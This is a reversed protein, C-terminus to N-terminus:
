LRDWIALRRHADRARDAATSAAYRRIMQMSRWGALDALDGEQSGGALFSHVFFHRFRHPHVGDVGAQRGRILLLQSLGSTSLPGTRGLWLEPRRAQRHAARVRLYRDIAQATKQGFPCARPRRGKGLVLVTDAELDLDGVRIRILESARMGTDALLRIVATDRRALFDRGMPLGSSGGYRM